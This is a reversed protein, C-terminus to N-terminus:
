YSFRRRYKDGIETSFFDLWPWPQDLDYPNGYIQHMYHQFEAEAYLRRMQEEYLRQAETENIHTYHQSLHEILASLNKHEKATAHRAKLTPSLTKPADSAGLNVRSMSYKRGATTPGRQQQAGIKQLLDQHPLVDGLREAGLQSRYGKSIDFSRLEHLKQPSKRINNQGVAAPRLGYKVALAQRLPKWTLPPYSTGCPMRCGDDSFCNTLPVKPLEKPTEKPTEKKKKRKKKMHRKCLCVRTLVVSKEKEFGRMTNVFRELFGRSQDDCLNKLFNWEEVSIYDVPRRPKKRVRRKRRTSVLSIRNQASSM